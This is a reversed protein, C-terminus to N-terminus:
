RPRAPLVIRPKTPHPRYLIVTHGILGCPAAGSRTALEAALARKDEPQHLRVKILEHATLADDVSRVVGATVGAHGVLVVPELAHALARLHKQQASSLTPAPKPTSSADDSM